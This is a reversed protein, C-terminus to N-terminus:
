PIISLVIHSPRERDVFVRNEAIRPHEMSGEPEGSNPNVDFHPFNSSSIDLRLRHGPMFLNGIPFLEITVAYVEGPTMLTPQEWSDRYRLRLLGETLNMAFGDPYDASPPHVDVLKATFDTDPGDSAVWLRVTVPGVIEIERDLPPTAFSLVDPRQCLPRYPERAGFVHPVERQDFAGGRMVPEGSSLAGGVTPVPRHPDFRFALPPSAEPKAPRLSRDPHLYFPTWQTQPLPWAAASRWRGGHDLRGAANRRGSGGGMVFVQVPPEAEVGNDVGKVWRDFWARRLGFFDEALNGDVAAAAGFDVDGAYTLSRDGHTWPGLILRNPARGRKSLGAYNEVATRAYPDYWGSLHTVPVDAYKEWYGEAYIGPQKWFEDFNGHGWQEFLYDEYDPAASLPSDGKRWPLRGLWAKIDQGELAAKIVPDKADALANNYAWTAQKLDFAGDHRIGSRYANSFGGCDLYQAALGPPDLCGLAAQTHAAYSLGFTGVRGNCWPQRVLWALTDYGDEAESLYKTFRGGSKYRGRCDQYVVTYGHRLFYAAVEARSRPTPVAATREARSPASKDYPTRELLVPFPGGHAPRYVDTALGVGDRARVLLDPEVVIAGGRADTM